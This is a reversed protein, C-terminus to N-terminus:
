HQNGTGNSQYAGIDSGPLTIETAGYNKDVPVKNVAISLPQFNTNGKGIAPSGSQLHFDFNGVAQIDILRNIAAPLPFNVFMPKNAGVLNAPATYVPMPQGWIYGAPTFAPIDTTQPITLDAAPYVWNLLSQSDGYNYNYGYKINATDAIPSICIRLGTRCNVVLGNYALGKAGEEYNWSGARGTPNPQKYGCHVYTNNYFNCNTQVTSGGKNSAKTGNTASGVILNYAADGSGGSKVNIVDGGNGPAGIKEFTNRMILFKGNPRMCDDVSGYVWSDEMVFLGNPNQFFIGVSSSGVKNGSIIANTFKAGLFEIHTWKIVLLKCSTDANIGCWKGSYAPDATMDAGPNDTKTINPATIWIPADKTGLSLLTGKVAFNTGAGMYVKVGPQILLTDGANVIIDGSVTYTKGSLMTGKISGSLPALDSVSAGIQLPPNSVTTTETTSKSCSTFLLASALSAVLGTFILKKMKM